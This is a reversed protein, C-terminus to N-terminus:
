REVEKKASFGIWQPLAAFPNKNWDFKAYGDAEAEEVTNYWWCDFSNLQSHFEEM